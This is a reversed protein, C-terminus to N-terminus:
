RATRQTFRILAVSATLLLAANLQHLAGLWVPVNLLLTAVGLGFQILTLSAVFNLSIKARPPANSKLGFIWMAVASTGLLWALMRHTWQIAVPNSVLDRIPSNSFTGPPLWMGNMTPFTNYFHGARLGATFAGFVIQLALLAVFARSSIQLWRPAGRSEDRPLLDFILWAIFSMLALALALHAALAYHSVHTMDKQLGTAVMLWGVGGQLGGFVFACFIKIALSKELRRKLLFFVFPIAVVFGTLRGVLRHAFEWLFLPKFQEVTLNPFLAVAQGTASKYAEFRENWQAENMPPLAGVMPEWKVISLGSETLRTVGGLVIMALIFGYVVILWIAVARTPHKKEESM